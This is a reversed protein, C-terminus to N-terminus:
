RANREPRLIREMERAFREVDRTMLDALRRAERRSVEVSDFDRDARPAGIIVMRTNPKPM